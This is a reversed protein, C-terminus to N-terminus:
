IHFRHVANAMARLLVIRLSLAPRTSWKINRNITPFVLPVLKKLLTIKVKAFTWNGSSTIKCKKVRNKDIIRFVTPVNLFLGEWLVLRIFKKWFLLNKRNTYLPAIKRTSITHARVCFTLLCFVCACANHSDLFFRKSKTDFSTQFDILVFFFLFFFWSVYRCAFATREVWRINYAARSTDQVGDDSLIIYTEVVDRIRESVSFVTYYLVYRWSTAAILFFVACGSPVCPSSIRAMVIIM